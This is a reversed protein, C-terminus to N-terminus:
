GLLSVLALAAGKCTLGITPNTMEDCQADVNPSM